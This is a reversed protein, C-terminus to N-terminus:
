YFHDLIKNILGLISAFSTFNTTRKNRQVVYQAFHMKGYHVTSDFTKENPNFTKGNLKYELTTVDFYHEIYTDSGGIKPIPIIYLNECILYFSAINTAKGKSVLNDLLSLIGKSGIDNDIIIIVPHKPKLNKYKSIKSEYRAILSKIDGEGGGLQMVLKTINSYRFFRVGQFNEKTKTPTLKYALSSIACKLYISDTM